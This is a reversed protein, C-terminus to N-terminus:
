FLKSRKNSCRQHNKDELYERWGLIILAYAFFFLGFNIMMYSNSPGQRAHSSACAHLNFANVSFAHMCNVERCVVKRRWRAHM